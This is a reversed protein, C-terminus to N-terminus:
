NQANSFIFIFMVCYKTSFIQLNTNPFNTFVHQSSSREMNQYEYDDKDEEDSFFDDGFSSFPDYDSEAPSATDIFHDDCTKV